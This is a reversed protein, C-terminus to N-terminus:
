NCKDNNNENREYSTKQSSAELRIADIYGTLDSTPHGEGLLGGVVRRVLREDFPGYKQWALQIAFREHASLKRRLLLSMLYICKGADFTEVTGGHLTTEEQVPRINGPKLIEAKTEGQKKRLMDLEENISKFTEIEQRYSLLRHELYNYAPVEDISPIDEMPVPKIDEKLADSKLFDNEAKYCYAEGIYKDEYWVYVKSDDLPDWRVEAKKRYLRADPVLYDKKLLRVLGTKSVYSITFPLFIKSLTKVSVFRRYRGPFNFYRECPKEGTTSHRLEHYDKTLIANMYQNVQEITVSSAQAMLESDLKEFFFPM